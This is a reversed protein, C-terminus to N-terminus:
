LKKTKMITKRPMECNSRMELM